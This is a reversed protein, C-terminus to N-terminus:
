RWDGGLEFAAWYKPSLGSTQNQEPVQEIEIGRLQGSKPDYHRLMELQAQRLAELKGVPHERDWLRKYFETMLMQTAADDVSWLSTVTSKAGAVQFARQLGLMGEGGATQGLGTECASLVALDVGHLDLSAVELASMIGDDAITATPDAVLEANNSRNAGALVLGSLLGPNFGVIKRDQGTQYTEVGGRKDESLASRVTTPAFFGHTALHVYRHRPAEERL